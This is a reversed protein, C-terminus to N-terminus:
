RGAANTDAPAPEPPSFYPILPLVHAREAWAQWASALAAVKAPELSAVDHLESRDNGMNYLQWKGNAGRAVLKWNGDRVARNGEHEWFLPNPREFSEGRFTPVLSVGEMAYVQQNDHFTEPYTAGALEVLTPMIDILHGPKRELEGKRAIGQPWHAILPTAIGGEHVFHKFLRFPTNSANAWERGVEIYTDAPGPMVGRGWRVPRGDRTHEPVMRTQLADPSMPEAPELGERTASSESSKMEEACAGNDQMYLVLTNELQGQERLTEVIQGIGQDMSDLMAAYVEMRAIQWERREEKDWERAQPSLAVNLGVIGEDHLRKLRAERIKGWGEDYRGKYKAIDEPKAHLPWHAATYSVYLFFPGDGSHERIYQTANKSLADTYYFNEPDDPPILENDRVLTNPDYFSGAGHITGYFRDFGRQLPWNDTSFKGSEIQEPSPAPTLHWKGVMYTAYGATRLVEALTVCHRNLNGRYGDVGNDTMMWGVGAQHPYLGTMLSARSPCCRANNYFQTYRLGGAALKDLNPTNIEGGYCGIDSFGVDDALIVVINPRPAEKATAEAPPASETAEQAEAGRVVVAVAIAVVVFKLARCCTSVTYTRAFAKLRMM